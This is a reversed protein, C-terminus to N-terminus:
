SIMLNFVSFIACTALASEEEAKMHGDLRGQGALNGSLINTDSSPVNTNYCEESNALMPVTLFAYVLLFNISTIYNM